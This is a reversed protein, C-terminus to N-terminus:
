FRRLTVPLFENSLTTQQTSKFELHLEDYRKEVTFSMELKRGNLEPIVDNFVFDVKNGHQKVSQLFPFDKVDPLVLKIKAPNVSLNQQPTRENISIILATIRSQIVYQVCSEPQYLDQFHPHQETVNMTRLTALLSLECVQRINRDGPYQEKIRETEQVLADASEIDFQAMASLPMLTSLVTLLKVFSLISQKKM